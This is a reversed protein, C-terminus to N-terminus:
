DEIFEGQVRFRYKYHDVHVPIRYWDEDANLILGGEYLGSSAKPEMHVLVNFLKSREAPLIFFGPKVALRGKGEGSLGLPIVRVASKKNVISQVTFYLYQDADGGATGFEVDGPTVLFSRNEKETTIFRAYTKRYFRESLLNKGEVSFAVEYNGPLPNDFYTRYIGDGAEQDNHQGDDYLVLDWNTQPSSVCAKVDLSSLGVDDQVVMLTLEVPEGKSYMSKPLSAEMSLTSDLFATFSVQNTEDSLNRIVFSSSRNKMNRLYFFQFREYKSLEYQPYKPSTTVIVNDKEWFSMINIKQVTRDPRFPLNTQTHPALRYVGSLFIKKSVTRNVIESYVKQLSFSEPVRYYEGGTSRAIADLLESDAHRTLGITYIPAGRDRFKLHVNDYAVNNEGDTLLITITREKKGTKLLEDYAKHLGDGINTEGMADIARIGEELASRNHVSTLPCITKAQSSFKIIAVRSVAGTNRAYELMSRVASRRYNGPDNLQMSVSTDIVLILNIGPSDYIVKRAFKRVLVNSGSERIKLILDYTGNKEQVPLRPILIEYQDPSRSLLWNKVPRPGVSFALNSRALASLMNGDKDAVSFLFRLSGPNQHSGSSSSIINFDKIEHPRYRLIEDIPNEVASLVPLAILLFFLHLKKSFNNM